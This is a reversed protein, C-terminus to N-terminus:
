FVFKLGFQLIRPDGSGPDTRTIRGLTAQNNVATNPVDLNVQNFINFFEVRAQVYSTNNFRFNKSLGMDWSHLSPGYYAGKGVNGFTGLDNTAFAAPNFFWVCNLCATTPIANFDAGTLKARDNGIGDLSNDTGSTVTFPRGTQYQMVGSWQWGGLAFRIPGSLNQGPLDMVWSTTFRHRHDQDLPGWMLAPDQYMFYPILEGGTLQREGAFDGVVKSLTYNSSVQFGRSFRKTLALQLGNYNSKRDQVQLNVTGIGDAAFQRRADTNGTTAGPITAIAPNLQVGFRGNRNRSGVYAARAMIGQAVEREFTLNFNYTVPTKYHEDLTEILVPRPFIAQQTGITADTILNFDTRGRYPDSFPGTPRVVSLRLNWPAANVAGNGSEGDRHQDYFAGGGGRLSTKGDGTIDWAFGVRPGFNYVSPDTGDEPVGPDGRFTEGRPAQPFVTSHVNNQYDKLSFMEIRGVKEHWPPTSELRAGLNLTLRNNIRFDDQVFLSGYNALYDKYEGTGQDFNSLQGLLFDALTNGTGTTTSGAFQFHGARRFQNRIEVTYRQLEGGFQLNHKGKNWTIRDSIELGPRFFSAELNDGINFFNNANIESISPLSPYIPLRVGLDQMSPVADPPFRRSFTRNYGVRAENLLASSFTKTWGGVINQMRTTAALTPNRYSLLNGETYTPNNHFNDFFYRVSLQDNQSLRHDVKTVLQNDQQGITRPISIRGDAGPIPIYKLVNVSAPDFRSVPIQNNPFPLGTLPDRVITSGFNGARQEATPVTGTLTGGVNQLDTNQYGIFFFTQNRRIPGGLFGGEQRRKLFDKEANFVNRANFTRDRLYGFGGGHFDNTGSRTVANVVAGASNGQAASYNSTQISFEQLADPFPFPQNQQFYPDTHSTGDLRFSVQRSETGNTSLRLAGPITKGSEQDVAQLVMGAVLTTLKAADRGNLPLEVIRKQDVVESLVSSTVDVTPSEGTVTLTESLSGVEISFNVTLNENAQLLLGKRQSTRFGQLEATINYTTPRLSTFTYRGDVGSVTDRSLGTAVEQAKITVGPVIAGTNDTVVGNIQGTQAFAPSSLLGTLCLALVIRRKM